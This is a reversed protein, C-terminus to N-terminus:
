LNGRRLIVIFNFSASKHMSQSSTKLASKNGHLVRQGLQPECTVTGIDTQTGADAAYSLGRGLAVPGAPM